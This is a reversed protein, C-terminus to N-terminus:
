VQARADERKKAVIREPIILPKRKELIVHSAAFNLLNVDNMFLGSALTRMEDRTGKSKQRIELKLKLIEQASKKETGASESKLTIDVDDLIDQLSCLEIWDFSNQLKCYHLALRNVFENSGVILSVQETKGKFDAETIVPYGILEMSKARRKHISPEQCLPSQLDYAYVIFAMLEQKTLPAHEPKEGWLIYVENYIEELAPYELFTDKLKIDRLQYKLKSFDM